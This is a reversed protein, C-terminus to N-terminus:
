EEPSFPRYETAIPELSFKGDTRVCAADVGDASTGSMFGIAVVQQTPDTRFMTNNREAFPDNGNGQGLM